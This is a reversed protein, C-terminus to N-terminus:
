RRVAIGERAWRGEPGNARQGMPGYNRLASKCAWQSCTARGDDDVDNDADVDVDVDSGEAQKMAEVGRPMQSLDGNKTIFGRTSRM